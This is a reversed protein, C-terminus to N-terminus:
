FVEMLVHPQVKGIQILPVSFVKLFTHLKYVDVLGAGEDSLILLNNDLEKM